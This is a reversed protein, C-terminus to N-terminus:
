DWCGALDSVADLVSAVVRHETSRTGACAIMSVGFAFYNGQPIERPGTSRKTSHTVPRIGNPVRRRPRKRPSSRSMQGVECPLVGDSLGQIPVTLKRGVRLSDHSRGDVELEAQGWFAACIRESM